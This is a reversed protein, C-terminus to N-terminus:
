HAVSMVTLHCVQVGHAGGSGAATTEGLWASRKYNLVFSLILFHTNIAVEGWGWILNLSLRLSLVFLSSPNLAILDVTSHLFFFSHTEKRRSSPDRKYLALNM